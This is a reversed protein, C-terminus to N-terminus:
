FDRFIKVAIEDDYAKLANRRNKTKKLTYKKKINRLPPYGTLAKPLNRSLESAEKRWSGTQYIWLPLERCALIQTLYAPVHQSPGIMKRVCRKAAHMSTGYRQIKEGYLHANKM